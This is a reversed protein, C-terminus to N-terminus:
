KILRIDNNFFYYSNFDNDEPLKIGLVNDMNDVDHWKDGVTMIVKLGGIPKINRRRKMLDRSTLSDLEQPTLYELNQRMISKFGPDEGYVNSTLLCHYRIGLKGLQKKSYDLMNPGRATIIVVYYGLDHARNLIDVIPKLSKVKSFDGSTMICERVYLLTDDIDFVVVKNPLVSFLRHGLFDCCINKVRLLQSLYHGSSPAGAFFDEITDDDNNYYEKMKDVGRFLKYSCCRVCIEKSFVFLIVLFLVFFLFCVLKCYM